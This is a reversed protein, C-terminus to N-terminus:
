QLKGIIAILKIVLWHVAFQAPGKQDNLEVPARIQGCM